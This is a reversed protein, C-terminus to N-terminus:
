LTARFREWQAKMRTMFAAFDPDGRMNDLFPDKEFLPYCPMGSEATEALWAIAEKNRGLLALATALNYSAHHFHSGRGRKKVAIAIEHEAAGADGMHARLVAM